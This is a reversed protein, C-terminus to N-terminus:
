VLFLSYPSALPLGLLNALISAMTHEEWTIPFWYLPQISAKVGMRQIQGMQTFVLGYLLAVTPLSVFLNIAGQLFLERLQPDAIVIYFSGMIWGIAAGLLCAGIYLAYTVFKNERFRRFRPGMVVRYSKVDASVLRLVNKWNM